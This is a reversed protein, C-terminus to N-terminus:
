KLNSLFGGLLYTVDGVVCTSVDLSALGSATALSGCRFGIVLFKFIVLM